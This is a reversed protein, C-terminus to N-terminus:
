NIFSAPKKILRKKELAPIQISVSIWIKEFGSEEWEDWQSYILNFLFLSTAALAFDADKATIINQILSGLRM